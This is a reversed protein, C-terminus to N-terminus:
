KPLVTARHALDQEFSKIESETGEKGNYLLYIVRIPEWNALTEVPKNVYFSGKQPDVYSTTCYGVPVGRLGTELKDRTIVFLVEEEM